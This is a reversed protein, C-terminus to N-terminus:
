FFHLNYKVLFTRKQLKKLENFVSSATKQLHIVATSVKFTLIGQRLAYEQFLVDCTLSKVCAFHQKRSRPTANFANLIGGTHDINRSCRSSLQLTKKQFYLSPMPFRNTNTYTNIIYMKVQVHIISLTAVKRCFFNSHSM